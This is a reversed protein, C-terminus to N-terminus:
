SPITFSVVPVLMCFMFNVKIIYVVTKRYDKDAKFTGFDITLSLTSKEVIIKLLMLKETWIDQM